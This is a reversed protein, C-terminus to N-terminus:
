VEIVLKMRILIVLYMLEYTVGFGGHDIGLLAMKLYWNSLKYKLITEQSPLDLLFTSDVGKLGFQRVM